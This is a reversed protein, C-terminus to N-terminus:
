SLYRYFESTKKVTFKDINPLFKLLKRTESVRGACYLVLNCGSKLSFKANTYIDYKLAKMSIDDSILIGNFGIEKRIINKIIKRSHTACNNSDLKTYLIHATMAFLSKTNKFSNFDNKKLYSFNKKVVPLMYHSDSKALGHGPIHKIVTAIKNKKYLNVCFKGLKNVLKPNKSFCRDGISKHTINKLSDLIPVTNINVGIKKLISCISNTYNKYIIKAHNNKKEFLNGFYKQNYFSNNVLYSLRSVRGGEEDLMIPFNKDKITKRISSILKTIQDLSKINRKFLIIGWPKEKNIIKKEESTLVLGSISIIAAKRIM